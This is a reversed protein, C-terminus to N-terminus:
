ETRRGTEATLFPDDPYGNSNSDAFDVQSMYASGSKTNITVVRDREPEKRSSASYFGENAASSYTSLEVNESTTVVFNVLGYGSSQGFGVGRPSFMIDMFDSYSNTMPDYWGPPLRGAVRTAELDIVIGNPFDLNKNNALVSPQGEATINSNGLRIEFNLDMLQDVSSAPFDKTLEWNGGSFSIGFTLTRSQGKSLEIQSSSTILGNAEYFLFEDAIYPDEVDDTMTDPATYSGFEDTGDVVGDMDDDENRTGPKGDRGPSWFRLRRLHGASSPQYEISVRGKFVGPTTVYIMGSATIPQGSSNRPGNQDLILRVGVAGDSRGIARDKAGEIYTVISRAAEPVREKNASYNLTTVTITALVVLISIAILLEVLTFASRKTRKTCPKM